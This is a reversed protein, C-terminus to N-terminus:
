TEVVGPFGVAHYKFGQPLGKPDLVRRGDVIVRGQMAKYLSPEAFESWETVIVCGDAKGLAEEARTGYYVADGFVKRANGLAKPDYVWVEAGESLLGNVIRVSPAERM